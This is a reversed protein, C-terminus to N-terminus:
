PSAPRGIIVNGKVDAAVCSSATPCSVSNLTTGYPSGPDITAPLNAVRSHQWRGNFLFRDGVADVAICYGAEPCSVSVLSGPFPWLM